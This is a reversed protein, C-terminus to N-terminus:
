KGGQKVEMELQIVAQRMFGAGLVQPADSSASGEPICLNDSDAAPLRVANLHFNITVWHKNILGFVEKEETNEWRRRRVPTDHPVHKNRTKM